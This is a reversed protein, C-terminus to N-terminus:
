TASEERGQKSGDLADIELREIEQRFETYVAIVDEAEIKHEYALSTMIGALIDRQNTTLM